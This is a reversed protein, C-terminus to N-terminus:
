KSPKPRVREYEEPVVTGPPFYQIEAWYRQPIVFYFPDDLNALPHTPLENLDKAMRVVSAADTLWDDGYADLELLDSYNLLTYRGDFGFYFEIYSTALDHISAYLPRRGKLGMFKSQAISGYHGNLEYVCLVHEEDGGRAGLQMLSVKYGAARLCAAAFLAGNYCEALHDIAVQLVSRDERESNYRIETDVYEQVKDPTNLEAFLAKLVPSLPPM